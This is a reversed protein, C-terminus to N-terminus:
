KDGFAQLLSGLENSLAAATNNRMRQLLSVAHSPPNTVPLGELLADMDTIFAKMKDQAAILASKEAERILAAAQALGEKSAM